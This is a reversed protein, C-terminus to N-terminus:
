PSLYFYITAVLLSVVTAILLNKLSKRLLNFDFIALSFGAGVIPGMLPSILMAGIVVAASSTNLGASAILISFILVWAGQGKISIGAKVEEITSEHNTDERIDLTSKLLLKFNLWLTKIPTNPTDDKM